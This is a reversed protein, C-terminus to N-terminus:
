RLVLGLQRAPLVTEHRVGQRTLFAKIPRLAAQVEAETADERQRRDYEPSATSEVLEIARAAARCPKPWYAWGDSNHNAWDALAMVVQTLYARNPVRGPEYRRQASFLDYENMFRM